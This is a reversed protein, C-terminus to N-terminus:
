LLFHEAKEDTGASDGTWLYTDFNDRVEPPAYLCQRLDVIVAVGAPVYGAKKLKSMLDVVRGDGFFDHPVVKETQESLPLKM